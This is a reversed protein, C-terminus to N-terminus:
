GCDGVIQLVVHYHNSRVAYGFLDISLTLVQQSILVAFFPAGLAAHVFMTFVVTLIL